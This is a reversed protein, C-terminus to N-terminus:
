CFFCHCCNKKLFWGLIRLTRQVGLTVLIVM